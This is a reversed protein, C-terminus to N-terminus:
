RRRTAHNSLSRLVDGFGGAVPGTAAPDIGQPPEDLEVLTTISHGTIGVVLWKRDARVLAIRERAGVPVAAVIALASGRAALGGPARRMLWAALPLAGLILALAVLSPWTSGM